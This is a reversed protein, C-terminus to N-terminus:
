VLLIASANYASHLAICSAIRRCREWVLGFALSPFVITMAHAPPHGAIWHASAFVLSTMLNAASICGMPRSWLPWRSFQRALAPLLTGRFLLEEVMPYLFLSSVLLWAIDLDINGVILGRRGSLWSFGLHATVPIILLVLFLQRDSCLFRSAGPFLAGTERDCLSSTQAPANVADSATDM